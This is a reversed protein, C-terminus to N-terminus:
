TDVKPTQYGSDSCFFGDIRSIDIGTRESMIESAIERIRRYREWDFVDKGFHFGAKALSQLDTAWRVIRDEM